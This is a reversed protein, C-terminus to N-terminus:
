ADFNSVAYRRAASTTAFVEDVLRNMVWAYGQSNHRTERVTLRVHGDADKAILFPKLAGTM